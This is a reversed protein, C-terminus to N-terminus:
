DRVSRYAAEPIFRGNVSVRCGGTWSYDVRYAGDWRNRCAVGEFFYQGIALVVLIGACVAAYILMALFDYFNM